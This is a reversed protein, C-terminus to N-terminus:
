HSLGSLKVLEKKIIDRKYASIGPKEVEAILEKMKSIKIDLLSPEKKPAKPKAKKFRFLKLHRLRYTEVALKTRGLKEGIEKDSLIPFNELLFDIDKKTWLIKPSDRLM